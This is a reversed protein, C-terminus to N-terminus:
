QEQLHNKILAAHTAIIRNLREPSEKSYTSEDTIFSVSAFIGSERQMVPAAIGVLGKDVMGHGISIGIRRTASLHRKLDALHDEDQTYHQIIKKRTRSPLIALIALSTAGYLIPMPRGREFSTQRTFDHTRHDNVCMVQNGYLRALVGIGPLKAQEVLTSLYRNGANILPDTLRIKREVEMFAPGLRYKADVTSELFGAHVLERFLRYITSAPRGFEEAIESITWVPRDQSFADFIREYRRFGMMAPSEKAGARKLRKNDGLNTM